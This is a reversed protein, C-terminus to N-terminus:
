KFWYQSRKIERLLFKMEHTKHLISIIRAYEPARDAGEFNGGTIEDHIELDLNRFQDTRSGCIRQYDFHTTAAFGGHIQSELKRAEATGGSQSWYEIALDELKNIDFMLDAISSIDNQIRSLWPQVFVTALIGLLFSIFVAAIQM